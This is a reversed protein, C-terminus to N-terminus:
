LKDMPPLTHGRWRLLAAAYAKRLMFRDAEQRMQALELREADLLTEEAHKDLLEQYREMDAQTRSRAVKWLADDALRELAALDPQFEAPAEEWNPPGGVEVAHLLVETLSQQTAQAARQFRLYVNEPLSLRVEQMPTMRRRKGKTM